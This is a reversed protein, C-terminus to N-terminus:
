TKRPFAVIEEVTAIRRVATPRVSEPTRGGTASPKFFALGTLESIQELAVEYVSFEPLELAELENLLDAQTLVYGKAKIIEDGSERFYIIKWFQKPLQVNRYFPDNAMFIPGGMVSVHLNEIEVDNFIANELEGWIGNAESQNFAEHQPLINTYFFSDVNARQAEELTGWVLDARRAIHGRDLANNVYLENGVQSKSPVNPDKKFSISSRSLRRIASGDINWAVWRAFRRSKSMALSFHTYNVVTSGDVELLDDRVEINEAVPVGIPEGVFTASYGTVAEMLRSDPAPKAPQIQLKEFVSAAYCALAHETEDGTEGAFHLGVMMDTPDEKDVLLWASGSDGGMSIEENKAPRRPDPAIEFGGIDQDGALGYNIRTTVHIRNVVGYTVETTRGSKVVKDGLDVEGIRNVVVGLDLIAPELQRQKIAAIACDGAVGLHSRVLRGVANREVRNDDHKGPQVIVDGVKGTEGNLIHWNSLIYPAGTQADYVVCGVTGASVSPHGISVGPIIPNAVGKRESAAQLKAQLKIERADTSYSRQIVDTPVPVGDVVLTKPIAVTGIAELAEPAVKRGVTFQISLTKTPKGDKIKYGIGVSTINHQNLFKSGEKRVFDKLSEMSVKKNAM